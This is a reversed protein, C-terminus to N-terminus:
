SGLIKIKNQKNQEHQKIKYGIAILIIWVPMLAVSVWLGNTALIVLMGVMFVLCFYNAIPYAISKFLIKEGERNKTKRFTLHTLSIMGWNVVLCVVVLSFFIEMVTKPLYYNLIVGVLTALSSVILAGVPVGRKNTKSLAKPANGQLSLGYLMRSNCYVGSNYVSLAATIIVFNLIHAASPIGINNFILVFPSGTIASLTDSAHPHIQNWPNLSLLVFLAGVYFIFIRYILQNIAMPITKQPNETEAATIGVLELGGFSFMVFALSIVMGMIGKPFFGGNSWLNEVGANPGAGGSILLISGLVIMGIIALVKVSAFWFETEGFVKVAGFNILNIIIFFVAVVQWNEIEPFWFRVYIGVATLEAIAVLVYLVWYNWGSLFGFFDGMYQYALNSFSGAIPEQTIMEGLQRMILFAVLGGIMYALIVSPGAQEITAATGLFLGTGIAGGLAILQIHRNKLGRHLQNTQDKQTM